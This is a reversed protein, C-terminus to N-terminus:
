PAPAPGSTWLDSQFVFALVLYPVAQHEDKGTRNPHAAYFQVLAVLTPEHFRTYGDDFISFAVLPGVRQIENREKSPDDGVVYDTRNFMPKIVTYRAGAIIRGHSFFGGAPLDKLFFVDLDNYLVLGRGPSMTDIIPDYYATDGNKLDLAVYELTFRDRVVVPGVAGVFRTAVMTPECIWSEHPGEVPWCPYLM